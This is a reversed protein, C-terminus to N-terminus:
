IPPMQRIAFIFQHGYMKAAELVQLPDSFAALDAGEMELLMELVDLVDKSDDVLLVRLGQLRGSDEPTDRGKAPLQPTTSLPLRVTFTCGKGIGESFVDVSGVHAKVLQRVLSLNIGLGERQHTAHQHEAQSFLDFVNNRDYENLGVGSDQIDLQAM